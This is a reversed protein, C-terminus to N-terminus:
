HLHSVLRRVLRRLSHHGRSHIAEKVWHLHSVLALVESPQHVLMQMSLQLKASLQPQQLFHTRITGQRLVAVPLVGMGALM